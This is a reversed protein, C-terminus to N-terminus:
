PSIFRVDLMKGNPSFALGHTSTAKKLRQREKGTVVDVIHIEDRTGGYALTKGDTSFAAATVLEKELSLNRLRRRTKVDWLSVVESDNKLCVTLLMSGDPSLAIPSDDSDKDGLAPLEDGTIVNWLRILGGGNRAALVKCDASLIMGPMVDDGGGLKRKLKGSAVDRIYLMGGSSSLITKNDSSFALSRISYEHQWRATGLRQIAGDPLPDGYPDTRVTANREALPQPDAPATPSIGLSLCAALTLCKLV